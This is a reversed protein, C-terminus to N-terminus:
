SFVEKLSRVASESVVIWAHNLVEYANLSRADIIKVNPRNRSALFLNVNERDDVLLVKEDALGLASIQEVFVKTRPEELEMEGLVLLRGKELRESLVGALAARRAKMNVKQGYSRPSPGHVTGGSRWLPSRFSGARARGTGKQRWPKRTSGAVESRGKVKATGRRIGARYARVVEWVLHRSVQRQFINDPLEIEGVVERSWNHVDVKMAM